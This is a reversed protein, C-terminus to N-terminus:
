NVITVQTKTGQPQRKQKQQIQPPITVISSEQYVKQGMPSPTTSFPTPLLKTPHGNEENACMNIYSEVLSQM